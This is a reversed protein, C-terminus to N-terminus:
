DDETLTKERWEAITQHRDKGRPPRIAPVFYEGPVPKYNKGDTKRQKVAEFKNIKKLADVRVEDEDIEWALLGDPTTFDEITQVAYMLAYDWDTWDTKNGFPEGTIPDRHGVWDDGIVCSSPRKDYM